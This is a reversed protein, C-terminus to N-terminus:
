HCTFVQGLFSSIHSTVSLTYIMNTSQLSVIKKKTFSLNTDHSLIGTNWEVQKQSSLPNIKYMYVYVYESKDFILVQTTSLLMSFNVM